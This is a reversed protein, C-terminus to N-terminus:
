LSVIQEPQAHLMAGTKEVSIGCGCLACFLNSVAKPERKEHSPRTQKTWWWFGQERDQVVV